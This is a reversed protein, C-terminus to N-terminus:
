LVVSVDHIRDQRASFEKGENIKDFQRLSRSLTYSIWGTLKGKVKEVQLEFGYARGVGYVLDGEVEDNLFLDAGNKYDIQNQLHKYYIETSIKFMNKNLNQYYGLAIQDAIQPKVNNSSPVWNDTPSSTTSNSLQHLYQFIRNYGLKISNNESIIFSGSLRPELGHYYTVTKWRETKESSLTTGDEAYEYKNPGGLYSFGSYRLGYMFNWRTGLKTENQIYAGLE